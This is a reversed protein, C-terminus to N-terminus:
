SSGIRRPLFRRLHPQSASRGFVAYEVASNNTRSANQLAGSGLYSAGLNLPFRAFIFILHNSLFEPHFKVPTETCGLVLLTREQSSKACNQCNLYLCPSAAHYAQAEVNQNQNTGTPFYRPSPSVSPQPLAMEAALGDGHHEKTV